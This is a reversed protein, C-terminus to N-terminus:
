WPNEGITEIVEAEAEQLDLWADITARRSERLRDQQVIADPLALSGAAVARELGVRASETAPEAVDRYRAWVAAAARHHVLATRVDRPIDRELKATQAAASAAQGRLDAETGQQRDFIPLPVDVEGGILNEHGNQHSYFGRVTPNPVVGVRHTLNAQGELNDRMARAAALDPRAAIARAVATAESPTAHAPTDIAAVVIPEDAEAGIATALRATAKDIDTEAGAADARNKVVDLRALDLDLQAADGHTVRKQAIDALREAQAAADLALVRRRQAAVLGAFARRVEGDVLRAHDALAQEAHALDFRAATIRLGRQGGVWLEEAVTITADINSVSEPLRHQNAGPTLVPNAALVSAQVLRGRASAVDAVAAALDTNHEHARSLATELNLGAAALTGASSAVALSAVVVAVWRM